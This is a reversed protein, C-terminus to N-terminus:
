RDGRVWHLSYVFSIVIFCDPLTPDYLRYVSCAKKLEPVHTVIVLADCILRHMPEGPRESRLRYRDHVPWVCDKLVKCSNAEDDLQVMVFGDLVRTLHFPGSARPLRHVSGSWVM